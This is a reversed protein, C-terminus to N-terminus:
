MGLFDLKFGSIFLLFVKTQYIEAIEVTIIKKIDGICVGRETFWVFDPFFIAISITWM